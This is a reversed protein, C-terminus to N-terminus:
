DEEQGLRAERGYLEQLRTKLLKGTANRPLEAAVVVSKPIKYRALKGDLFSLLDGAGAQAGDALVVIARGVEGWQEDPVAIVACEAVASHATLVQEVEAPYVNEGGSIFMDKARGRIYVYGGADVTAMDGSKLWGDAYAAATAAPQQWYGASVNPGSIIVEGTEGSPVKALDPGVVRVDTFFCPTGASGAKEVSEQARLFLAGPSTETLGYGQLFTLGRAQYALILPAPVPAGGCMLIRVSSLDSSAWRSARTMASFMAPVGFMWTVRHEEILDLARGPDFATMLLSTGGKLFTPLFLQNLAATHFMPASVLSVEDTAVDVDILMNYCNWAINAHSLMVGKPRGSTGSTYQIMCLDDLGVPEDLPEDPQRALLDEYGAQGTGGSGTSIYRSVKVLDHLAAITDGFAADFILVQAGCDGIIGALEPPALRTNLPVFVAGLSGAAFMTEALSPLNRGLYAVRDGRSVGLARLARAARASRARVDAYSYRRGEHLLAIRDPTM